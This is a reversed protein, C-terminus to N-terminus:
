RAPPSHRKLWEAARRDAAAIQQATMKSAVEQRLRQGDASGASEALKFWTYAAAYDAPTGRGQLYMEGITSRVQAIQADSLKPTLLRLADDSASNNNAGALVYCAYANIPDRDVGRGEAYANGLEYQADANGLRAAQQLWRIAGADDREVGDGDRYKKALAVQASSDGQQAAVRLPELPPVTTVEPQSVKSSAPAKAQSGGPHVSLAIAAGAIVALGAIPLLRRRKPEPRSLSDAFRFDITPNTKNDGPEQPKSL